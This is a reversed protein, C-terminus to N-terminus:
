LWAHGRITQPLNNAHFFLPQHTRVRTDIIQAELMVEGQGIM